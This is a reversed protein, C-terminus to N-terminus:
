EQTEDNMLYRIRKKFYSLKDSQSGEYVTDVHGKKDLIVVVPIQQFKFPFSKQITERNSWYQKKIYRYSDQAAKQANIKQEDLSIGILNMKDKNKEYLPKIEASFEKCFECWSAWFLIVTPQNGESLNIVATEKTKMKEITLSKASVSAFCSVTFIFFSCFIITKM